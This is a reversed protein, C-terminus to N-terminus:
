AQRCPPESYVTLWCTAGGSVKRLTRASRSRISRLRTSTRGRPQGHGERPPPQQGPGGGAREPGSPHVLEDVAQRARGRAPRLRARQGRLLVQEVQADRRVVADLHEHRREVVPDHGRRDRGAVQAPGPAVELVGEARELLAEVGGRRRAEADGDGPPERVEALADGLRPAPVGRM